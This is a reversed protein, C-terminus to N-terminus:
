QPLTSQQLLRVRKRICLVIVSVQSDSCLTIHFTLTTDISLLFILLYCVVLSEVGHSRGAALHGIMASLDASIIFSRGVVNVQRARARNTFTGCFM